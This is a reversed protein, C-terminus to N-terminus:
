ALKPVCEDAPALRPVRPFSISNEARYAVHPRTKETPIAYLEGKRVRFGGGWGMLPLKPILQSIYAFGRTKIKIKRVPSPAAAARGYMLSSAADSVGQGARGQGPRGRGKAGQGRWM